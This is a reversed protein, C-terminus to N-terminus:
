PQPDDLKAPIAIEPDFELTVLGEPVSAPIPDLFNGSPGDIARATQKFILADLSMPNKGTAALWVVASSLFLNGGNWALGSTGSNTMLTMITNPDTPMGSALLLVIQACSPVLTLFGAVTAAWTTFFGLALAVGLAIQAPALFLMYSDAGSAGWANANMAGTYPNYANSLGGAAVIKFFLYGTLGSHLLSTALAMRLTLGIVHLAPFPGQPPRKSSKNVPTIEM